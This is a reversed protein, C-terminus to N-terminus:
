GYVTYAGHFALLTPYEKCVGKKSRALEIEQKFSTEQEPSGVVFIFQKMNATSDDYYRYPNGASSAGNVVGEGSKTEKLYARCSGVVWRLVGISGAPADIDKLKGGRAIHEKIESVRPLKEILWVLAQRQSTQPLEDLLSGSMSEDYEPPISISDDATTAM